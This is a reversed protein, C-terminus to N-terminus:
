GHPSEGDPPAPDEAKVAPRLKAIAVMSPRLLRDGLLYGKRMERVVTGAPQEDTEIHMVAEHLAPDFARNEADIPKLGFREMAALFQRRVLEMGELLSGAPGGTTASALALDLADVASLLELLVESRGRALADDIDRRLRKRLNDLDAATRLLRDHESGVRAELEAIRAAPDEVDIDGPADGEVAELDTTDAEGGPADSEPADSKTADEAL